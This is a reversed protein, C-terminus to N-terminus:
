DDNRDLVNEVAAWESEENEPVIITLKDGARAKFYTVSALLVRYEKDGVKVVFKGKDVEELDGVIKKRKVPGIQKFIFTGDEMISLKLVDGPILKSKSAYNPSVPYREGDPAIMGEGDFVGEVVSGNEGNVALGAAKNQIETTFLIAKVQRINSEATDLLQKLTRLDKENTM